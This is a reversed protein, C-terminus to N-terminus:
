RFFSFLCIINDVKALGYCLYTLNMTSKPCFLHLKGGKKNEISEEEMKGPVIWDKVLVSTLFSM